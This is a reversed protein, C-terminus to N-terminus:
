PSFIFESLADPMVQVAWSVFLEDYGTLVAAGVLLLVAGFLQHLTAGAAALAKRKSLIVGRMGYSIALFPSMVGIAFTLMSTAALFPQQGQAALAMAGGLAPGVCPTWALGILAGIGFQAPLSDSTVLALQQGARAGLWQFARAGAQKALRPFILLIGVLVLLPGAIARLGDRELGFFSGTASIVVGVLTFAMAVGAALALAGARHGRMASSAISPLVPLVCPSLAAVVGAVYTLALTM